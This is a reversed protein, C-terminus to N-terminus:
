RHCDGARFLNDVNPNSNARDRLNHLLLSPKNNGIAPIALNRYFSQTEEDVEAPPQWIALQSRSLFDTIKPRLDEVFKNVSVRVTTADPPNRAPPSIQVYPDKTGNEPTRPWFTHFRESTDTLPPIVVISDAV